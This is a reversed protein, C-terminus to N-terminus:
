SGLALYSLCGWQPNLFHYRVLDIDRAFRATVFCDQLYNWVSEIISWFREGYGDAATGSALFHIDWHAGLFHVFFCTVRKLSPPISFEGYVRLKLPLPSM